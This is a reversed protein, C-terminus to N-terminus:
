QADKKLLNRVFSMMKGFSVFVLEEEKFEVGDDVETNVVYGNQVQKIEIKM